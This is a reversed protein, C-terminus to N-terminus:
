SINIKDPNYKSIKFEIDFDNIQRFHQTVCDYNNFYDDFYKKKPRKMEYWNGIFEKHDFNLVLYDKKQEILNFKSNQKKNTNKSKAESYETLFVFILLLAFKCVFM